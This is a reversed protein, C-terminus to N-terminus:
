ALIERVVPVGVPRVPQYAWWKRHAATVVTRALPANASWPLGNRVWARLKAIEPDALKGAPPMKLTGHYEVARLLRSAEPKGSVAAPGSDGGALVAARSDLRLGGSTKAPGHCKLCHAVLLPRISKEFEDNAFVPTALLTLLVLRTHM